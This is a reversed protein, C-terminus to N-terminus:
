WSGSERIEHNIMIFHGLVVLNLWVWSPKILVKPKADHVSHVWIKGLFVMCIQNFNVHISLFLQAWVKAPM